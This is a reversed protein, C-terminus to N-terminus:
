EILVEGDPGLVKVEYGDMADFHESANLIRDSVEFTSAARTSGMDVLSGDKCISLYQGTDVNRLYRREEFDVLQIPAGFGNWVLLPARDELYSKQAAAWRLPALIAKRARSTRHAGDSERPGDQPMGKCPENVPPDPQELGKGRQSVNFSIM